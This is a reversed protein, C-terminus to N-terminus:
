VGGKLPPTQAPVESKKTINLGNEFALLHKKTLEIIQKRFAQIISFTFTTGFSMKLNPPSLTLSSSSSYNILKFQIYNITMLNFMCHAYLQAEFLGKGEVFTKAHM